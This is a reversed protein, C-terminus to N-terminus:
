RREATGTPGSWIASTSSTRWASRGGSVRGRSSGATPSGRRSSPSRAGGALIEAGLGGDWGAYRREESATSRRRAEILDAAVLLARALTDIGGIHAHFLDTRDLSQRRLKADFNFGGTTFGGHASSRTCRRAGARRGLEPVPRHGLREPLRRPEHRHQRLHREAIAVAVEHHFSHGALTAHNAEINVRYEDALDHRVLFGHSRRPTTTTSISRRSRRSRSSCCRGTSGSGTSTSRSSTLFRALQEEERALDTNLLTEYGERGGWLVYNEGGCGIRRRSCTSSRPPRTRSCRPIRTPRRAPRTARTASSTRRAGCCGSAPASWTARSTTWSPRSRQATDGRVHRGRARRRPRPLMFFPVGLKAMFEFAADLKARAAEMPDGGPRAVTPRVDRRRLCGVRALQVLAVPLRRDPPPGGDAQRPGHPRARLGQLDAPGDIGARRVRDAGACRHLLWGRAGIETSSGGRM